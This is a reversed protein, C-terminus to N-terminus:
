IDLVKNKLTDILLSLPNFFHVYYVDICYAKKDPQTHSCYDKMIAEYSRNNSFPIEQLHYACYFRLKHQEDHQIYLNLTDQSYRLPLQNIRSFTYIM